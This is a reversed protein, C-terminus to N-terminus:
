KQHVVRCKDNLMCKVDGDNAWYQLAVLGAVILAVILLALTKVIAEERRQRRYRERLSSRDM